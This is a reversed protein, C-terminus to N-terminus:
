EGSVTIEFNYRESSFSGNTVVYGVVDTGVYNNSPTYTLVDGNIVATGNTPQATITYTVPLSRPDTSIITVSAPTNISTNAAYHDSYPRLDNIFINVKYVPSYVEGNFVKYTFYDEGFAEINPTYVFNNDTLVLEGLGPEEVVSYTLALDRPDTAFITEQVSEGMDFVLSMDSAIPRTDLVHIEHYYPPSFKTGNTVRFSMAANGYFDNSPTLSVVSENISTTFYPNEVVEYMLPLNNPDTGELTIDMATIMNTTFALGSTATPYDTYPNVPYSESRLTDFWVTVEQSRVNAQEVALNKADLEAKEVMYNKYINLMFQTCCSTVFDEKTVPNNELVGLGLDVKEKYNYYLAFADKVDQADLSRIPVQITYGVGTPM